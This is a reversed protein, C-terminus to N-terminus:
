KGCGTYRPPDRPQNKGVVHSCFHCDYGTWSSLFLYSIEMNYTVTEGMQAGPPSPSCLQLIFTAQTETVAQFFTM